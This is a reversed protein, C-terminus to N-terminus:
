QVVVKREIVKVHHEGHGSSDIFRVEDDHGASILVSRISEKVSDDLANGSIITIGDPHHSQIAVADHGVFAMDADDGDRRIVRIDVNENGGGHGLFAMHPGNTDLPPVTVTEGNIEFSIGAETRTVTIPEGSDSEITRTEGLALSDLDLDTGTSVWEVADGDGAIVFKIEKEVEVDDAIALRSALVVGLLTTRLINKM